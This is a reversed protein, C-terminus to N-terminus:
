SDKWGGENLEDETAEDRKVLVVEHGHPKEDNHAIYVIDDDTSVKEGERSRIYEETEHDVFYGDSDTVIGLLPLTSEIESPAVSFNPESM